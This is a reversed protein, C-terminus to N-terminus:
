VLHLMFLGLVTVLTNVSTLTPVTQRWLIRVIVIVAVSGSSRDTAARM